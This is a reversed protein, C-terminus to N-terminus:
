PFLIPDNAAIRSLNMANKFDAVEREAACIEEPSDTADSLRWSALLKLTGSDAAGQDSRLAPSPIATAEPETQQNM